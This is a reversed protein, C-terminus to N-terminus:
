ARGRGRRCPTRWRWDPSPRVGTQNGSSVRRRCHSGMQGDCVPHDTDSVSQFSCGHTLLSRDSKPGPGSQHERSVVCGPFPQPAAQREKSAGLASRDDLLEECKTCEDLHLNSCPTAFAAVPVGGHKAGVRHGGPLDLSLHQDGARKLHQIVLGRHAEEKAVVPLAIEPPPHCVPNRRRSPIGTM